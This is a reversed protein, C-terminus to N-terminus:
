AVGLIGTGDRSMTCCVASVSPLESHSSKWWSCCLLVLRPVSGRVLGLAASRARSDWGGTGSPLVAEPFGSSCLSPIM